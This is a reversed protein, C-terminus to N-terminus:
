ATGADARMGDRRRVYVRVRGLRSVHVNRKGLRSDPVDTQADITGLLLRRRHRRCRHRRRRYRRCRRTVATAATVAAGATSARAGAAAQPTVYHAIPAVAQRAAGDGLHLADHRRRRADLAAAAHAALTHVVHAATKDERCTVAGATIAAKVARVRGVNEAGAAYEQLQEGQGEAVEGEEARDVYRYAALVESLRDSVGRDHEERREVMGALGAFIDIAHADHPQAHQLKAVKEIRQEGNPHGQHRHRREPRPQGRETLHGTCDHEGHASLHIARREPYKQQRGDSTSGQYAQGPSESALSLSSDFIGRTRVPLSSFFLSLFLFSFFIM